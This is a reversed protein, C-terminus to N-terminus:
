LDGKQPRVLLEEVVAAPGLRSATWVLEALDDPDMLREPPHTVGAWSDSWTAGPLLATVKVGTDRTEARLSRTLGLLAFKTITYSAGGPYAQLSAVSCLTFVHGRGARIMDPVFSRTLHYASFLNIQMLYELQGQEAELVGGPQFLGANHILIDPTIGAQRVAAVFDERGAEVALDAQRLLVPAKPALALIEERLRDLGEQGRACGAVGYGERAFRLALARGIGKSVGTILVWPHTPTTM